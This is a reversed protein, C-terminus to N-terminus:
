ADAPLEIEKLLAEARQVQDNAALWDLGSMIPPAAKELVKRLHDVTRSLENRFRQAEQITTM